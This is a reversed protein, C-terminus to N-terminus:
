CECSKSEIDLAYFIHEPVEKIHKAVLIVTKAKGNNAKMTWRMFYQNKYSKKKNKLVLILTKANVLNAKQTWRMYYLNM